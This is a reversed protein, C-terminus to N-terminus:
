AKNEKEQQIRERVKRVEDHYSGNRDDYGHLMEGTWSAVIHYNCTIKMAAVFGNAQRADHDYYGEKVWGGKVCKDWVLQGRLQGKRKGSRTKGVIEAIEDPTKNFRKCALQLGFDTNMWAQNRTFQAYTVM